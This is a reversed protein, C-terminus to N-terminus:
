QLHSAAKQRIDRSSSGILLKFEGHEVKRDESAEDFFAFSRKDDRTMSEVMKVVKQDIADLDENSLITTNARVSGACMFLAIFAVM